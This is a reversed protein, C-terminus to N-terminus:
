LKTPCLKNDDKILKTCDVDHFISFCNENRSKLVLFPDHVKSDLVRIILQWLQLHWWNKWLFISLIKHSFIADVVVNSVTIFLIKSRICEEISTWIRLLNWITKLGYFKCYEMVEINWPLNIAFWFHKCRESDKNHTYVIHVTTGQMFNM